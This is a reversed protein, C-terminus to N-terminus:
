NSVLSWIGIISSTVGNKNVGYLIVVVIRVKCAPTYTDPPLICTVLFSACQRTARHAHMAEASYQVCTGNFVFYTVFDQMKTSALKCICISTLLYMCVKQRFEAVNQEENENPM